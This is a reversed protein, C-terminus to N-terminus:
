ALDSTSIQSITFALRALTMDEVTISKGEDLQKEVEQCLVKM